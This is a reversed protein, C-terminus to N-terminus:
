RGIIAELEKPDIKPSSTPAKTTAKSKPKAATSSEGIVSSLEDPSISGSPGGINAVPTTKGSANGIVFALEDSNSPSSSITKATAAPKDRKPNSETIAIQMSRPLKSEFERQNKAILAPRKTADIEVVNDFQVTEMNLEVSFRNEVTWRKKEGLKDPHWAEIKYSGPPINSIIAQGAVTRAYLPTDVVYIHGVMSDHLRCGIIHDGWSTYKIPKTRKQDGAVLPLELANKDDFSFVHHKVSDLNPFIVSAGKTLPLVYPYYTRRYQIMAQKKPVARKKLLAKAPASIPTMFVVIDDLKEKKSNTFSFEARVSNCKGTLPLFISCSLLIVFAFQKQQWALRTLKNAPISQNNQMNPESTRVQIRTTM